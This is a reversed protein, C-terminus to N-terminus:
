SRGSAVPTAPLREPLAEDGPPRVVDRQEPLPPLFVARELRRLEPAPDVARVNARRAVEDLRAPTARVVAAYLCACHSRYAAAEAAAIRVGSDYLERLERHGEDDGLGARRSEYDRAEADKRDAVQDMGAVVDAPIRFAPIRVIQTQAGPLPVRGFVESVSVGDLVPALRDPSLYDSFTVLAYTEAPAGETAPAALLADLRERSSRVYGPISQGETAGVRVVDGGGQAVVPGREAAWVATVLVATVSLLAAVTLVRPRVPGQSLRALGRALPPLLRSDLRRLLEGVRM